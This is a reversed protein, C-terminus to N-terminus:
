LDLMSTPSAPQDKRLRRGAEWAERARKIKLDWDPDVSAPRPISSQEVENGTEHEDPREEMTIEKFTM